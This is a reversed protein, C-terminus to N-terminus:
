KREKIVSEIINIEDETLNYKKYLEADTFIHDFKEPDPVLRWFTENLTAGTTGFYILFGVLRSYAFSVFSKAENETDFYKLIIFSGKPVENPKIISINTTGVVKGKGNDNFKVNNNGWMCSTICKYKDLNDKTYLESLPIYGVHKEGQMVLADSEFQKASYGRDQEGVFTCRKFMLESSISKHKTVKNIISNIKNNFLSLLEETHEEWDSSITSNKSCITKVTKKDKLIKNITFYSIGGWEQIDFVDYSDRYYVIKDMYPVISKRFEQNAEGGKAQWKAPTVMCCCKNSLIHGKTVFDLYIDNNYPPNGIVIDFKMIGFTEKLKDTFFKFGTESKIYNDIYNNIYIINSNETNYGYLNRTAIVKDFESMSIGYLQNNLIWERRYEINDGLQEILKPHNILRNYIEILFNGSKCAIDLFKTDKNWVEDPLLDVMDKVVNKPTIMGIGDPKGDAKMLTSPGLLSQIDIM